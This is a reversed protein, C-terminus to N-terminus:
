AIGQVVGVVGAGTFLIGVLFFVVKNLGRKDFWSSALFGLGMLGMLIFIVILITEETM